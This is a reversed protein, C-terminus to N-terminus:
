RSLGNISLVLDEQYDRGDGGGAVFDQLPPLWDAGWVVPRPEHWGEPLSAELLQEISISDGMECGERSNDYHARVTAIGSKVTLDSVEFAGYTGSEPVM